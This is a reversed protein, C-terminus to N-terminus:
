RVIRDDLSNQENSYLHQVESQNQGIEDFELIQDTSVQEDGFHGLRYKQHAEV